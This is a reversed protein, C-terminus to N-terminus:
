YGVKKTVTFNVFPRLTYIITTTEATSSSRFNDRYRYHLAQLVHSPFKSPSYTNIFLSYCMYLSVQIKNDKYIICHLGDLTFNSFKLV